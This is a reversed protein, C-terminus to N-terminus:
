MSLYIYFPEIQKKTWSYKPGKKIEAKSIHVGAIFCGSGPLTQTIVVGWGIRSICMVGLFFHAIIPTERYIIIQQSMILSSSKSAQEEHHSKVRVLVAQGWRNHLSRHPESCISWRSVAPIFLRFIFLFHGHTYSTCSAASTLQTDFVCLFFCMTICYVPNICSADIKNSNDILAQFEWAKMWQCWQLTTNCTCRFNSITGLGPSTHGQAHLLTSVHM